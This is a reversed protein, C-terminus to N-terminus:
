VLCFPWTPTDKISLPIVSSLTPSSLHSQNLASAATEPQIGLGVHHPLQVQGGESMGLCWAHFHQLRVKQCFM